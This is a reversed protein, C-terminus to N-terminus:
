PVPHMQRMQAATFVFVGDCFTPMKEAAEQAQEKSDYAGAYFPPHVSSKRYGLEAWYKVEQASVSDVQSISQSAKIFEFM